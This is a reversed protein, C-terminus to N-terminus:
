PHYRSAEAHSGGSIKDMTDYSITCVKGGVLVDYHRRVLDLRLSVGLSIIAGRHEDEKYGDSYRSRTLYVNASMDSDYIYLYMNEPILLLMGLPYHEHIM